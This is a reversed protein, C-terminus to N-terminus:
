SILRLRMAKAVLQTRNVCDLKRMATNMYTNVTHDSLSLIAAIDVSTKGNAAWHLVELERGTLNSVPPGDPNKFRCYLAYAHVMLMGLQSIELQSLPKRNGDFGIAARTGGASHVPFFVAMTVNHRRFLERMPEKEIAPRGDTLKDLSLVTPVTSRRLDSFIRSNKLLGLSDYEELFGNPMNSLSIRPMLQTDTVSPVDVLLFGTLGFARATAHLYAALDVESHVDALADFLDKDGIM